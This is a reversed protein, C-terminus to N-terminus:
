ERETYDSESMEREIEQKIVYKKMYKNIFIDTVFGIM